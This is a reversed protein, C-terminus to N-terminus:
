ISKLIQPTIKSKDQKALKEFYKFSTDENEQIRWAGIINGVIQWIKITQPYIDLIDFFSLLKLKYVLYGIEDFALCVQRILDAEESYKNNNIDRIIEQIKDRNGDQILNFILRRGKRQESARLREM